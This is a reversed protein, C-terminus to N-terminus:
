FALGAGLIWEKVGSFKLGNQYTFSGKAEAFMSFSNVFVDVGGKYYLTDFSIPGFSSNPVSYKTLVGVGAYPRIEGSPLSLCISPMLNWEKVNGIKALDFNSGLNGEVALEFGVAGVSKVTVGVTYTPTAGVNFGVSANVSGVAFIAASLSALLVILSVSFRKV